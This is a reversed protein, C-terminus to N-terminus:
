EGDALQAQVSSGVRLTPLGAAPDLRRYLSGIEAQGLSCGVQDAQVEGVLKWPEAVITEAVFAVRRRRLRPARPCPEGAEPIGFHVISGVVVVPGVADVAQM